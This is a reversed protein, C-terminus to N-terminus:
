EFGSAFLESFEVAGIDIASGQPRAGGDVDLAPVGYFLDTTGANRMPSDHRLRFDNASVFGPVASTAALNASPAGTLVSYRNNYMSVAGSIRLDALGGQDENDFFINNAVYCTSDQRCSMELGASGFGGGSTRVNGVVTNNQFSLNVNHMESGSLSVAGQTLSENFSFINGHIHGQGKQVMLALAGGQDGSYCGYMRTREIEVNAATNIYGQVRMCGGMESARGNFLTLNRIELSNFAGNLGLDFIRESGGGDFLTLGAIQTQTTCVGATGSWGGTIMLNQDGSMMLYYQGSPANGSTPAYIGSKIRIEDDVGNGNSSSLASRLETPTAVCFTAAVAGQMLATLALVPLLCVRILQIKM